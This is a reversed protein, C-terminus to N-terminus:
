FLLFFLQNTRDFNFKLQKFRDIRKFEFFFKQYFSQTIKVWLFHTLGFALENFFLNPVPKVLNTLVYIKM